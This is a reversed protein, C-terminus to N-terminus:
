KGEKTPEGRLSSHIRFVHAAENGRLQLPLTGIAEECECPWASPLCRCRILRATARAEPGVMAEILAGADFPESM